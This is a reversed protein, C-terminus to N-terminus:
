FLFVRGGRTICMPLTNTQSKIRRCQGRERLHMKGRLRETGTDPHENSEGRCADLLRQFGQNVAVEERSIKGSTGARESPATFRPTIRLAAEAAAKSASVGERILRAANMLRKQRIYAHVTNGTQAKFLRMFHYRSLFVREALADM